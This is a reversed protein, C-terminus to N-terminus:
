AKLAYPPVLLKTEDIRDLTGPVSKSSRVPVQGPELRVPSSRFVNRFSHM